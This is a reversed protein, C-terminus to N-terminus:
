TCSWPNTILVHKIVRGESSTAICEGDAGVTHQVRGPATQAPEAAPQESPLACASLLAVLWLKQPNM